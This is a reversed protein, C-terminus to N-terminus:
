SPASPAGALFSLRHSGTFLLWNLCGMHSALCCPSILPLAYPPLLLPKNISGREILCAFLRSNRVGCCCCSVILRGRALLLLLLSLWRRPLFSTSMLKGSSMIWRCLHLTRSILLASRGIGALALGQKVFPGRNYYMSVTVNYM